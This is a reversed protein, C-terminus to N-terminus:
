CSLPSNEVFLKQLLLALSKRDRFRQDPLAGQQPQDLFSIRFSTPIQSRFRFEPPAQVIQPQLDVLSRPGFVAPPNLSVRFRISPIEQCLM